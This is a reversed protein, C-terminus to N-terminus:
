CGNEVKGLGSKNPPIVPKVLSAQEVQVFDVGNRRREKWM